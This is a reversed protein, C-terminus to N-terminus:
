VARCRTWSDTTRTSRTRAGSRPAMYITQWHVPCGVDYLELPRAGRDDICLRQVLDPIPDELLGAARVIRM